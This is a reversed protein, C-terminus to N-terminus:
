RAGGRRRARPRTSLRRAGPATAPQRRAAGAARLRTAHCGHWVEFAAEGHAAVEGPELLRPVTGPSMSARRRRCGATARRARAGRSARSRTRAVCRGRSRGPALGLALRDRGHVEAAARERQGAVDRRGPRAGALLDDLELALEDVEHALVQREGAARLHPDAVAIGALHERLQGGAEVSGDVDRDDVDERARARGRVDRAGLEVAQDRRPERGAADDRDVDGVAGAEREGARLRRGERVDERVDRDGASVEISLPRRKPLTTM